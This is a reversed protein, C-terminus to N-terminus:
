KFEFYITFLFIDNSNSLSPLFIDNSRHLLRIIEGKFCFIVGFLISKKKGSRGFKKKNSDMVTMSCFFDNFYNLLFLFYYIQSCFLVSCFLVFCFLFFLYLLNHGISIYSSAKWLIRKPRNNYPTQKQQKSKSNQQVWFITLLHHNIKM